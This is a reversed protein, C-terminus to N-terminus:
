HAGYNKALFAVVQAVQEDTLPAGETAMRSVTAQWDDRSKVQATSVAPDHCAGCVEEFVQKGKMAASDSATHGPATSQSTQAAAPEALAMPCVTVVSMAFLVGASLGLSLWGRKM